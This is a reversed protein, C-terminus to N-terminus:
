NKFQDLNKNLEFFIRYKITDSKKTKLINSYFNLSEGKFVGFELYYKNLELDNEIARSIRICENLPVGNDGDVEVYIKNEAQFKLEILFDFNNSHRNM